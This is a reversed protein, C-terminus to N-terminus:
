NLCQCLLASVLCFGLDRSQSKPPRATTDLGGDSLAAAREPSTKGCSVSLPLVLAASLNSHIPARRDASEGGDFRDRGGVLTTVVGM